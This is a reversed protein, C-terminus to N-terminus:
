AGGAGRPEPSAELRTRARDEARHLTEILLLGLATTSLFILTVILETTGFPDLTRISPFLYHYVILLSGLFPRWERGCVAMRAGLVAGIFPILLSQGRPRSTLVLHLGLAGLVCLAAVAFRLGAPHANTM